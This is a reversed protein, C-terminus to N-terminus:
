LGGDLRNESYINIIGDIFARQEYECFSGSQKIDGCEHFARARCAGGCVYKLFCTSCGEINDVTLHRCREVVPSQEYMERINKEHINGIYFEPYHLLQCPYVDGTASISLESDGMACKCNRCEQAEDLSSECYSLPNVGEANRLAMYYESGSISIDQDGKKANGAPFLPAFSLRSGYKRAMAAVDHINLRNVTMSLRTDIGHSIMLDIAHETRRYTGKGRFSEHLEENSGDMSVTVMDFVEAIRGVNNEDVLTANTLLDVYHGKQKIHRAIDLCNTNLLPEGGTLTFKVIESMECLEEIVRQYDELTMRPHGSERRDTAYCYRCNLNCSPSISLQVISLRGNKHLIPTEGPSPTDFLRSGIAYTLFKDVMASAECGYEEKFLNIIEEKTQTGNCLSLLLAGNHDTVVWSPIDPNFFITKEGEVIQQVTSPLKLNMTATLQGLLHVVFQM